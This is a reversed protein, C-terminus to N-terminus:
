WNLLKDLAAGTKKREVNEPTDLSKTLDNVAKLLAAQQKQNTLNQKIYDYVTITTEPQVVDGIALMKAAYKQRVAYFQFDSKTENLESIFGVSRGFLENLDNATIGLQMAHQATKQILLDGGQYTKDNAANAKISDFTIKKDKLDNLMKNAKTRAAEIDDGKPVVVLFIKAMDNQVFSSKNLDYFNRIESDTAAVKKVEEQVNKQQLVYQQAVLQNKLYAKYDAVNMGVQQKMFEDLSLGTNKKVIEAFENETVQRGVQMSLSQLFYQNVQTDTLSLGAKAAAQGILKEDIIAALIEKKQEITFTQIKNQKQYMEVRTKLQKLTITESKNLKVVALPQLDAQAVVTTVFALLMTAVLAFRKM